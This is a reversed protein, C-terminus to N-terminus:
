AAFIPDQGARTGLFTVRDTEKSWARYVGEQGPLANLIGAASVRVFAAGAAFAATRGRVIRGHLRAALGIRGARTAIWLTLLLPGTAVFETMPKHAFGCLEYWFAGGLLAICAATEGFHNRAAFYMGAPITLSIACFM